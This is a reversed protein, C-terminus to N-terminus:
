ESRAVKARALHLSGRCGIPNDSGRHGTGDSRAKRSVTPRPSPRLHNDSLASDPRHHNHNRCWDSYLEKALLRERERLIRVTQEPTHKTGKM